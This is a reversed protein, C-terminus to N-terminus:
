AALQKGLHRSPYVKRCEIAGDYTNAVRATIPYGTDSCEDLAEEWSDYLEHQSGRHETKYEAMLEQRRSYESQQHDGREISEELRAILQAFNDIMYQAKAQIETQTRMDTRDTGM